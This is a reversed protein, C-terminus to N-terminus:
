EGEGAAIIRALRTRASALQRNRKGRTRHCTKCQREKGNKQLFLNDGSL